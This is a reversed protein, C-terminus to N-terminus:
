KNREINEFSWIETGNKRMRKSGIGRRWRAMKSSAIRRIEVQKNFEQAKKEKSAIFIFMLRIPVLTLNLSKKINAFWQTM